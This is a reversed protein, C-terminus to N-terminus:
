DSYATDIYKDLIKPDGTDIDRQFHEVLTKSDNAFLGGSYIQHMIRCVQCSAHSILRSRVRFREVTSALDGFPPIWADYRNPSGGPGVARCTTWWPKPM